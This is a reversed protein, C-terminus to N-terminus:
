DNEKKDTVDPNNREMLIKNNDSMGAVYGIVIARKIPEMQEVMDRIKEACEHSHEWIYNSM